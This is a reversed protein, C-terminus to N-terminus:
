DSKALDAPFARPSCPTHGGHLHDVFVLMIDAMPIVNPSSMTSVSKQSTLWPKSRREAPGARLPLLQGAGNFLQGNGVDFRGRGQQHLLQLGVCAPVAVLLGLATTVLAESIGGAVRPCGPLRPARLARLVRQHHRGRHRVTRRFSRDVRYHRARFPRAENGRARHAVSRDLAASPLKL